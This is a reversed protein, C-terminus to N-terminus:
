SPNLAVRIGFSSLRKGPQSRFRNITRCFVDVSDWSGGRLVREEGSNPGLPDNAVMSPYPGYWDGCWEWINGSMDYLGLGNPRKKGVPESSRDSNKVYWAVADINEGGAYRELKGGSRAAYEWQAETPLLFQYMGGNLKNLKEIFKIAQKWSVNEVPYNEGRRFFSPNNPLGLHLLSKLSGGIQAAMVRGWQGQTVPYRALYFSKLRVEHAPKESVNGDDFVDGMLFAGGPVYVLEMGTIPEFFKPVPTEINPWQEATEESNTEVEGREKDFRAEAEAHKKELAVLKRELEAKIADNESAAKLKQRYAELLSEFGAKENEIRSEAELRKNESDKLKRELEAKEGWIKRATTLRQRYEEIVAEPLDGVTPVITLDNKLDWGCRPCFPPLPDKFDLDCVPCNKQM